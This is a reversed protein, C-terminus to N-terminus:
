RLSGGKRNLGRIGGANLILKKFRDLHSGGVNGGVWVRAVCTLDGEPVALKLAAVHLAVPLVYGERSEDSGDVRM